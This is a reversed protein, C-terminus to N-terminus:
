ALGGELNSFNLAAGPASRRRLYGVAGYIFVLAAIVILAVGLATQHPTATAKYVYHGGHGGPLAQFTIQSEDLGGHAHSHQVGASLAAEGGTLGPGFAALVMGVGPALAVLVAAASALGRAAARTPRVAIAALVVCAAGLAGVLAGPLAAWHGQHHALGPVAFLRSAAWGAFVLVGAAAVVGWVQRAVRAPTAALALGLGVCAAMAALSLVAFQGGQVLLSPLEIAQVLAIGALCMTAASRLLAERRTLVSETEV